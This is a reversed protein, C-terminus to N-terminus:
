GAVDGQWLRRMEESRGLLEELTCEDRRRNALSLEAVIRELQAGVLERDLWERRCAIETPAELVRIM